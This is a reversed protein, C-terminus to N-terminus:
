EEHGTHLAPGNRRRAEPVVQERCHRLQRLVSLVAVEAVVDLAFPWGATM